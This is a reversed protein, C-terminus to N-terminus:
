FYNKRTESGSNSIISALEQAKSSIVAIKTDGSYFNLLGKSAQLASKSCVALSDALQKVRRMSRDEPTRLLDHVTNEIIQLNHTENEVVDKGSMQGPRKVTYSNDKPDIGITYEKLNVDMYHE